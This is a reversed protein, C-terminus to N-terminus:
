VREQYKKRVYHINSTLNGGVYYKSADNALEEFVDISAYDLKLLEIIDDVDVEGLRGLKTVAIDEPSPLYIALPSDFDTDIRVARDQYGDHLPGLTTNFTRDVVLQTPGLEPDEFYVEPLDDLVIKLEDQHIPHAAFEVDVDSSSRNQTHLHVACGGFIYAHICGAPLKRQILEDGLVGLLKLIAERMPTM